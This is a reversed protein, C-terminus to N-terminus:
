YCGTRQRSGLELDISIDDPAIEGNVLATLHDANLEVGGTIDVKARRRHGVRHVRVHKGRGFPMERREGVEGRVGKDPVLALAVVEVGQVVPQHSLLTTVRDHEGGGWAIPPVGEYLRQDGM